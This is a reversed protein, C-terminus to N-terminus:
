PRGSLEVATMEVLNRLFLKGGAFSPSTWSRSGDLAQMSGLERYADPALEAVVLRGLDTLIVLRDGAAIVSGKGLGRKAWTVEGSAASVCKLTANDFGYLHDGVAVSANFHNRMERNKWLTEVTFGAETKAVRIVGGGTDGMASVFLRDGPLAVPTAIVGEEMAHTWLERGELSVGVIRDGRALVIQPTGALQISIPSCYGAEGEFSAWRVAGSKRDFAVLRRLETGGVELVVLEGVVLPSGSYGFRPVTAGFTSTLDVEWVPQGSEALVARFVGSGGLAYVHDGDVTPTGRPGNGFEQQVFVGGLRQRWLESGSAADFAGLWDHEADSFGTFVRGGAVALQSFGPGLPLRWVVRPGDAPWSRIVSAEHVVGDRGPGRFGPWDPSAAACAAIAVWPLV